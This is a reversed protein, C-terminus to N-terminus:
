SMLEASRPLSFTFTTGPEDGNDIFWICGHHAEVIAKTLYLGLGTGETKRSLANDLRSFKQFIRHKEHEPIGIGGDRVSVTVYEPLASGSIVIDGGDPSYKIANSLLNNLVQTLRKEDGPVVPFDDPFHVELDHNDTQTAFKRAVSHAVSAVSVDSHLDLSFTGGQLRSAELLNDILDTLADAEEEITALYDNVLERPWDVDNRLLTGAYGKIISVPTKLEHSVVSIFTKQLREEEKYRTLDRVNAIINVMNGKDDILPAYTVGLSITKDGNCRFEGEVYLPDGTAYPWGEELAQALSMASNLSCWKFVDHHLHGIADEASIGTMRSLAANFVTIRLLPDLIMVGEANQQLIANLRRKEAIVAEYLRANKVAIAAQAAFSQLFRALSHTIHYQRTHFVFIVGVIADGDYMPLGLSQTLTPNTAEAMSKVLQKVTDLTDQKTGDAYPIGILLEDFRRFVRAPIGYSAVARFTQDSPEALMVVGARSSILEASARLIVRLVETLELEATLARGIALMYERERVRPDLIAHTTNEEEEVVMEEVVM